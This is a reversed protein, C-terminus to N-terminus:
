PTRGMSRGARLLEGTRDQAAARPGPRRARLAEPVWLADRGDLVHRAAVRLPLQDLRRVGVGREGYRRAEDPQLLLDPLEGNRQHREPLAAPDVKPDGRESPSVASGAADAPAAAAARRRSFGTGERR